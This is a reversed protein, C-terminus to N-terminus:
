LVIVGINETGKLGDSSWFIKILLFLVARVERLPPKVM